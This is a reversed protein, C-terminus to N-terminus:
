GGISSRSREELVGLTQGLEEIEIGYGSWNGTHLYDQARDYHAVARKILEGTELEAKEKEQGTKEAPEEGFIQALAGELRDDMIVQDGYVVIV